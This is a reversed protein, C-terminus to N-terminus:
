SQSTSQKPESSSKSNNEWRQWVWAVCWGLGSGILTLLLVGWTGANGLLRDSGPLKLALYSYALMGGILALFGGRIGWRMIGFLSTMWYILGGVASAVLLALFWDKLDTHPAPPPLPTPEPTPSSTATPTPTPTETPSPTESPPLAVAAEPPVEFQLVISNKAPESEVRIQLSGSADVLFTTRAIGGKTQESQVITRENSTTLIFQVVTNDPVPHDNQDWIIGTRLPILDGVAFEPQRTSEPTPTGEGVPAPTPYDLELGILQDPDPATVSILDYGVAPVSVPLRGAPAPIEGFLLRAAAEIFPPTKSYLGYFATLKSVETQDLFYPANCAFVILKKQRFLEPREALFRALANSPSAGTGSDLTLFVIWSAQRLNERLAVIEAPPDAQDFNDLLNILDAFSYSELNRQLVQGGASPGYLRAVVQEFTNKAPVQLASCDSCQKATQVDTFFVVRDNLGPPEPLTEALDALSPSILSVAAQAVEFTLQSAKGVETLSNLPPQVQGLTFIEDYLHYKLTLIRLVSADVRQQFAPDERYKQAFFALTRVITAYSDNDAPNTSIFDSGVFLLDNGAQFFADRAIFRASFSTGTPDSFRRFAWSGLNDSVMVGGSERWSAIASQSMLQTSAQPDLSVPRTTERINGQFGQYRIHATLLGDVRAESTPANGTVAFFPPLDVQVLETLSKRITAVEEEPLRNSSGHGPFHKAIVALRGSSGQHLGTIYARGMEGVWYPDGGFTRVGLGSTGLPQPSYLVDLSPGLLFNVGVATLESGLVQGVRRALEPQWTAGLAMQSPLPTLGSLIQDYPYGNGEQALGIFLPIYAPTFEANSVPEIQNRQSARWEDEQLSRTLRLLDSLTAPAETFNDNEAQLIVGGIHHNYILDYIQTDPAASTGNFTVLFLQGVREEPTLTELLRRAREATPNTQQAQAPRTAIAASWPHVLLQLLVLALILRLLKGARRGRRIFPSNRAQARLKFLM